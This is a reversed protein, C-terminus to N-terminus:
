PDRLVYKLYKLSLFLTSDIEKTPDNESKCKLPIQFDHVNLIKSDILKGDISLIHM